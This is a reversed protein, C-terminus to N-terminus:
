IHSSVEYTEETLNSWDSIQSELYRVFSRAIETCDFHEVAAFRANRSLTQALEPNSRMDRIAQVLSAVQGPAVVVGAKHRLVVEAAEGSAVLVIPRGSAMAEYLKSPVAGPIHMGLPVVILDAAALHAPIEANPMADLFTVNRIKSINARRVLKQKQPGDGILVFRYGLEHRLEEAADLVQELGQALGHLGSYLVVFENKSTLRSRAQETRRQAHFVHTDAGNSLLLTNQSPFRTEIDRLISRSQGTVLWAHRYCFSELRRGFRHAFSDQRIAGIRVASEPWLDSVNFILNARKLRSLWFAAIGLFLPPSEVLLFDSSKLLFSGFLASSFVFSFYNLLRPLVAASQSPYVFTRIVRVTSQRERRLLGGYGAQIRGAPYNPMATLVTVDHGVSAFCEALNSLRNQPAGVEPPYYQTLITFHM